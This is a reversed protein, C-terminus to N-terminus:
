WVGILRRTFVPIPYKGVVMIHVNQPGVCAYFEDESVERFDETVTHNM